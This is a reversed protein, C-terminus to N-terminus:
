NTVSIATMGRHMKIELSIERPTVDAIVMKRIIHRRDGTM